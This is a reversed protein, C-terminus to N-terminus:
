ITARAPESAPLPPSRRPKGTPALYDRVADAIGQAYGVSSSWGVHEKLKNCEFFCRRGMLWVAYRTVLPPKKTRFAHGFCEMLFAASYAVRYPVSKTIPPEGIANAIGDFYARQPLLGDHCCNYAEGVARDSDAALIAAEAVNGAHVVNLRNKGDGIIKLKRSRISDILRPLTARDRPGYLWSPRIVTVPMRGSAHMAWIRKEAEIKARTYYSWKHLNVGLPASEDFVKGDGDVHGYVSISSIHLFRRVGAAAAGDLLHQTGDVSVHVFDEWPGWDGVRAAAHYVVDVGTCARRVVERDTLDGDIIETGLSRLFATDSGSRCLARVRRNRRHLQEAIHSGLLGTGGTVLSLSSGRGSENVM